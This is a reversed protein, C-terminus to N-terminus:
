RLFHLRLFLGRRLLAALAAALTAALTAALLALSRSAWHSVEGGEGGM